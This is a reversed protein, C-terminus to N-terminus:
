DHSSGLFRRALKTVWMTRLAGSAQNEETKKGEAVQDLEGSLKLGKSDSEQQVEPLVQEQAGPESMMKM